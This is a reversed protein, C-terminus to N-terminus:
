PRKYIDSGSNSYIKNCYNIIHSIDQINYFSAVDGSQMKGHINAYRLYIYTGEPVTKINRELVEVKDGRYQPSINAYSTLVSYMSTLDAYIRWNDGMNRSLWKASFVEEEYTYPAYLEWNNIPNTRYGSLPMSTPQSDKSIEYLFGTQLLFFLILVASMPLLKINRNRFSRFVDKDIKTISIFITQGGIICYPALFFLMLHYVRSMKITEAFFPLLTCLILVGLSIVSMQIYHPDFNSRKYRFVTKVVGIIIFVQLIYFLFKSIEHMMSVRPPSLYVIGGGLGGLVSVPIKEIIKVISMLPESSAIFTYWSFLTISYFIVYRTNIIDGLNKRDKILFSFLWASLIFFMYIYAIAYHSIILAIGFIISLLQRKQLNMKKNTLLLLSLALFIEAIIQRALGQMELYFEVTSMFFFVSLFAISPTTQRKYTQFLAIPVLSYLLIYVIKLTWVRDINLFHSFIVPLVTVSLMANYNHPITFNWRSHSIASNFFYLETHIDYGILYPSILLIHLLLAIAIILVIWPNVPILRKSCITLIVLISIVIFSILLISNDGLSNVQITGIISLLPISLLFFWTFFHSSSTNSNVNVLEAMTKETPYALTCLIITAIGTSVIVLFYSLPETIGFIPYLSNMFFGTLMLFVISLGISFLFMDTIDLKRIKLIKIIFIGPLLILYLFGVIQRIVGINLFISLYTILQIIIAIMFFVKWNSV